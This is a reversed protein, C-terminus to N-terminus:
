LILTCIQNAAAYGLSYQTNYTAILNKFYAIIRASDWGADLRFTLPYTIQPNGAPPQFPVRNYLQNGSVDLGGDTVKYIWIQVLTVSPTQNVSVFKCEFSSTFAM